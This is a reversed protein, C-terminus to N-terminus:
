STAYLGKIKSPIHKNKFNYKLEFLTSLYYEEGFHYNQKVFLLSRDILILIVKRGNGTFYFYLVLIKLKYNHLSTLIFTFMDQAVTINITAIYDSNGGRGRTLQAAAMVGATTAVYISPALLAVTSM